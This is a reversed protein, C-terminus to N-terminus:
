RGSLSSSSGSAALSKAKDVIAVFGMSWSGEVTCRGDSCVIDKWFYAEDRGLVSAEVVCNRDCGTGGGGMGGVRGSAEVCLGNGRSGGGHEPKDVWEALSCRTTFTLTLGKVRRFPNIDPYREELRCAHLLFM